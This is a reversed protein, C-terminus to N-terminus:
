FGLLRDTRGEVQQRLKRLVRGADKDIFEDFPPRAILDPNGLCADQGELTALLQRIAPPFLLMQPKVDPYYTRKM